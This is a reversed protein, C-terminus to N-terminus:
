KKPMLIISKNDIILVLEKVKYNGLLRFWLKPITIGVSNGIKQLKRNYRYTEGM